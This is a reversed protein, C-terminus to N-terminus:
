NPHPKSLTSSSHSNTPFLPINYFNPQDLSDNSKVKDSILKILQSKSLILPTYSYHLSLSSPTAPQFARLAFLFTTDHCLYNHFAKQIWNACLKHHLFKNKKKESGKRKWWKTSERDIISDLQFPTHVSILHTSVYVNHVQAEYQDKHPKFLM